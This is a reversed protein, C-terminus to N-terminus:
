SISEIFSVRGLRVVGGEPQIVVDPALNQLALTLLAPAGLHNFPQREIQAGRERVHLSERHAIQKVHPKESLLTRVPLRGLM